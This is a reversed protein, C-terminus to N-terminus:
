AANELLALRLAAYDAQMPEAQAPRRLLEALAPPVEIPRGILPEVIRAPPIPLLRLISMATVSKGCGSEGVIALTEGPLVDFCALSSKRWNANM